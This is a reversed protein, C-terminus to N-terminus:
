ASGGSGARRARRVLAAALDPNSLFHLHVYSALVRGITFGESEELGSLTYRARYSRPMAEPSGSGDDVLRAGAEVLRSGAEVLRPGAEVLRSYHFSHGRAVTGAPGIVSDRTLTVEVYGFRQSRDTMEVTLPLAGVMPWARGQRTRIAQSLYMLGGCEAYVMGDSAIFSAVSQRMAHNAGLADAFLEPYGGGFYLADLNAPLQADQLPSFTVIEAGAARLAELNDEYYFCFARDRAVGIRAVPRRAAASRAIAPPPALAGPDQQQGPAEPAIVSASAAIELLRDLDVHREILEALHAMAGDSLAEEDATVLGLYREPLRLTADRPLYGLASVGDVGVLAEQLLRYHNASGVHNFIVGAVRVAPDFTAFGHVLAAASAAMKSADVVLVIPLGLLCAMEATSGTAAGVGASRGVGDFLGMVGEVISIDASAAHHHFLARNRAAPLMWGDLNTSSRGCVRTHHGPDIFDPGVKFPQVILGRRKLAAMLGLAMTTKGAGSSPGAVVL